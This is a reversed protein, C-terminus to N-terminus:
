VTVTAANLKGTEDNILGADTPQPTLHAEVCRSLATTEALRLPPGISRCVALTPSLAGAADFPLLPNLLLAGAPSIDTV